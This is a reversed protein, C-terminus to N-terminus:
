RLSGDPFNTVFKGYGSGTNAKRWTMYRWYYKVTGRTLSQLAKSVYKVSVAFHKTLPFQKPIGVCKNHYYHHEYQYAMRIKELTMKRNSKHMSYQPLAPEIGSGDSLIEIYKSKNLDLTSKVSSEAIISIDEVEDSTQERLPPLRFWNELFENLFIRQPDYRERVALFKRISEPDYKDYMKKSHIFIKGWHPRADFKDMMEQEIEV